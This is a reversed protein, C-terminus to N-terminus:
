AVARANTTRTAVDRLWTIGREIGDDDGLHATYSSVCGVRDIHWVKATRESLTLGCELGGAHADCVARALAGLRVNVRGNDRVERRSFSARCSDRPADDRRISEAAPTSPQGDRETPHETPTPTFFGRRTIADAQIRAAAENLSAFDSLGSAAHMARLAANDCTIRNAFAIATYLVATQTANV